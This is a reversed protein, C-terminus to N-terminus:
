QEDAVSERHLFTLENILKIPAMEPSSKEILKRLDDLDSQSLIPRELQAIGSAITTSVTRGVQEVQEVRYFYVFRNSM